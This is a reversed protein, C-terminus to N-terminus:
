FGSWVMRAGSDGTRIVYYVSAGAAAVTLVALVVTVAPSTGSRGLLGAGGALSATATRRPRVVAVLLLTIVGLGITTWLTMNGFHEHAAIKDLMEPSAIKRAILRRRFADGSLKALLATAPGALALLGVAWYAYRRVFPVVAYVISAVGLLPVFVVAAHILLPHLPLGMFTEFVPLRRM